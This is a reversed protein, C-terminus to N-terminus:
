KMENTILTGKNNMERWNNPLSRTKHNITAHDMELAEISRPILLTNPPHHALPQTPEPCLSPQSNLPMIVLAIGPATNTTGHSAINLTNAPLVNLANPAREDPATQRTTDSM